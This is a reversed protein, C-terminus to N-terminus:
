KSKKKSKRYNTLFNTIEKTDTMRMAYKRLADTGVLRQDSPVGSVDTWETIDKIWSKFMMNDETVCIVYNPGRRTIKGVLGTNLNEVIDDINFINNQYYQEKLNEYDLKPAIKWMEAVTGGGELGRQVAHFLNEVEKPPMTKPIGAQFEAFDDAVAAKRLKASSMNTIDDTSDPDRNGASVVKIEEFQYIGDEKKNHKNALREFESVRDAGVIINVKTFGDEYINKLVEFITTLSRDNVIKKKFEPFMKRMYKIKQPPNLPDTTNNQQRSPYVRLEGGSAVQKAKDLVRKHGMTPPNFRGLVITISKNKEPEPAAEQEAPPAIGPRVGGQAAKAQSTEDQARPNIKVEPKEPSPSKKQIFQLDGAVTQAILKGSRDVWGGHKNSVLGLRSAKESARSGRYELLFESFTKM